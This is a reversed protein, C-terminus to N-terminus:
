SVKHDLFCGVVRASCLRSSARCIFINLFILPHGGGTCLSHVVWFTLSVSSCRELYECVFSDVLHFFLLVLNNPSMKLAGCSSGMLSNKNSGPVRLGRLGRACHSM